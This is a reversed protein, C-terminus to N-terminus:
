RCDVSRGALRPASRCGGSGLTAGVATPLGAAGRSFGNWRTHGRPTTNTTSTTQITKKTYKDIAYTLNANRLGYPRGRARDADTAGRLRPTGALSMVAWTAQTARALTRAAHLLVTRDGRPLRRLVAGRRARRPRVRPPAAIKEACNICVGACLMGCGTCNCSSKHSTLGLSESMVGGRRCRRPARDIMWGAGTKQRRRWWGLLGGSAL